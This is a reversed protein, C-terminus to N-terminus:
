VVRYYLIIAYCCAKHLVRAPTPRAHDAITFLRYAYIRQAFSRAFSRALFFRLQTWERLSTTPYTTSYSVLKHYSMIERDGMEAAAEM